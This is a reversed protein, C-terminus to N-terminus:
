RGNGVWVRAFWRNVITESRCVIECPWIENRLNVDLGQKHIYQGHGQWRLLHSRIFLVIDCSAITAIPSAAASPITRVACVAPLGAASILITESSIPPTTVLE